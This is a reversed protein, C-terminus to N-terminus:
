LRSRVAAKLAPASARRLAEADVLAALEPARAWERLALGAHSGLPDACRPLLFDVCRAASRALAEAVVANSVKGEGLWTRLCSVADWRTSEATAWALGEPAKAALLEAGAGADRRCAELAARRWYREFREPQESGWRAAPKSNRSGSSRAAERSISDLAVGVGEWDGERAASSVLFSVKNEDMWRVGDCALFCAWHGQKGAAFGSRARANPSIAMSALGKAWPANGEMCAKHLAAEMGEDRGPRLHIRAAEWAEEGASAALAKLAAAGHELPSAGSRMLAAALGHEGQASAEKLAQSPNAQDM